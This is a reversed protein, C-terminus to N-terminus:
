WRGDLIDRSCVEQGEVHSSRQISEQEIAQAAGVLAELDAAYFAQDQPMEYQDSSWSYLTEWLAGFDIDKCM